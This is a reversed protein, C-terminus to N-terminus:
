LLNGGDRHQTVPDTCKSHGNHSPNGGERHQTGSTQVSVTGM